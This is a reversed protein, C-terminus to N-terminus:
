PCSYAQFACNLYWKRMLTALSNAVFCEILHYCSEKVYKKAGMGETCEYYCTMILLSEQFTVRSLLVCMKIKAENLWPSIGGWGVKGLERMQLKSMPSQTKCRWYQKYTMSGSLTRPWPGLGLIYVKSGKIGVIAGWFEIKERRVQPSFIPNQSQLILDM